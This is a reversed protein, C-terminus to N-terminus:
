ISSNLINGEIEVMTAQHDEQRGDLSAYIRSTGGIDEASPEEHLNHFVGDIKNKYYQAYHLGSCIWCKTQLPTSNSGSAIPKNVNSAPVYPKM